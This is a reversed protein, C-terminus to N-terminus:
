SNLIANNVNGIITMYQIPYVTGFLVNNAAMEGIALAVYVNNGQSLEPYVQVLRDTYVKRWAFKAYSEGPMNENLDGIPLEQFVKSNMIVETDIALDLNSMKEQIVPLNSISIISSLQAPVINVSLPNQM